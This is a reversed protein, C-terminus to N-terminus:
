RSRGLANAANIITEPYTAAEILDPHDFVLRRDSSALATMRRRIMDPYEDDRRTAIIQRRASVEALMLRPATCRHALRAARRHAHIIEPTAALDIQRTSGLWIRHRACLRQHAPLHVPVPDTHGRTAACRRCAYTARVLPRGPPRRFRVGATGAAPHAGARQVPGAGRNRPRRRARRPPRHRAIASISWGRGRLAHAEVDEECTLM